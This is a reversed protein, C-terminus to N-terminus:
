RDRQYVRVYDIEFAAPFISDDIAGGLDGGLALNLILYQPTDFPWVRRAERGLDLRPYRFHVFDDVGFSVDDATWHMQYRHFATCADPINISGGVGRGGHGALTHVTSFVHTPERGIQEMIDLEGEDPWRGGAGLMWIAPWTGKGCPLKARVEFFGYTWEAKGRTILRASTYRQGGWDPATRRQEKRATIVLRGNKVTANWPGPGSYYQLEHNHWGELNRETDFSWKAPDPAGAADFEDSWVLRYGDPLAAPETASSPAPTGLALAGAVPAAWATHSGLARLSTFPYPRMTKM